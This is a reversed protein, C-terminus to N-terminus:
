REGNEDDLSWRRKAGSVCELEKGRLNVWLGEASNRM